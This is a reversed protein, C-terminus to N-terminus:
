LNPALGALQVILIQTAPSNALMSIGYDLYLEFPNSAIAMDGIRIVQIEVPLKPQKKELEYRSLVSMGRRYKSHNITLDRYWRAEKTIEPHSKADALMKEYEPKWTEIEKRADILDQEGLLRRSLEIVETKQAFAPNWEINEKMYPLIAETGNTLQLAIMKRQGLTGRGLGEKDFGMLKQMREEAKNGWMIHPSQDGAASAQGLVHVENGFREKFSQRTENWFDGSLLYS